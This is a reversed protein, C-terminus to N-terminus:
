YNINNRDGTITLDEYSLDSSTGLKDVGLEFDPIYDTDEYDQLYFKKIARYYTKM